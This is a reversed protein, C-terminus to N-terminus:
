NGCAVLGWKSSIIKWFDVKTGLHETVFKKAAALVKQPCNDYDELRLRAEDKSGNNYYILVDLYEGKPRKDRRSM